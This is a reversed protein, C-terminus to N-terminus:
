GARAPAGDGGLGCRVQIGVRFEFIVALYSLLLICLSPASVVSSVQTQSRSPPTQTPCRRTPNQRARYETTACRWLRLGASKICTIHSRRTSIILTATASINHLKSLWFRRPIPTKTSEECYVSTHTTCPFKPLGLQGLAPGHSVVFGGVLVLPKYIFIKCFIFFIFCSSRLM